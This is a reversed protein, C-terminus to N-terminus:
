KEITRNCPLYTDKSFGNVALNQSGPPSSSYKETVTRASTRNEKMFEKSNASASSNANSRKHKHSNGTDAVFMNGSYGNTVADQSIHNPRDEQGLHETTTEDIRTITIVSVSSPIKLEGV